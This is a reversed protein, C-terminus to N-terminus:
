YFGEIVDGCVVRNRGARKGLYLRRDALRVMDDLSEAVGADAVGITITIKLSNGQYLVEQREVAIRLKELIECSAEIQMPLAFLFEEGGWRSVMAHPSLEEQMLQGIRSLVLDGAEHGFRDNLQKFHDIDGIAVTFPSRLLKWERYKKNLYKKIGWRNRLGTLEDQHSERELVSNKEHLRSVEKQYGSAFISSTVALITLSMVVNIVTLAWKEREGIMNVSTVWQNVSGDVLLYGVICCGYSAAMFFKKFLESHGTIRIYNAPVLLYLLYLQTGCDDGIVYVSLISQAFVAIFSFVYYFAFWKLRPHIIFLLLIGAIILYLGPLYPLVLFSTIAHNIVSIGCGGAFLKRLQKEVGAEYKGM